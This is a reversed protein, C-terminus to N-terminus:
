VVSKRDAKGDDQIKPDINDNVGSAALIEGNTGIVPAGITVYMSQEDSGDGNRAAHQLTWRIVDGGQTPLDQYLAAPQNANMEIFYRGNAEPFARTKDAPLAKIDWVEFLSGQYPKDETTNWGEGVGNPIAATITGSPYSTPKSTYTVGNLVYSEWPTTLEFNGNEIQTASYSSSGVQATLTPEEDEAYATIVGQPIVLSSLVMAFATMHCLARRMLMGKMKRDKM